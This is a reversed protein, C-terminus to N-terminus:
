VDTRQDESSSHNQSDLPERFLLAEWDIEMLSNGSVTERFAKYLGARVIDEICQIFKDLEATPVPNGKIKLKRPSGGHVVTSRVRYGARLQNFVELKTWGPM